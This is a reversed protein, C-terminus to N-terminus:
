FLWARDLFETPTGQAAEVELNRPTSTASPFTARTNCRRDNACRRDFGVTRGSVSQGIQQCGSAIDIFSKRSPRSARQGTSRGSATIAFETRHGCHM